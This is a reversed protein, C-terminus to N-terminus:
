GRWCVARIELLAKVPMLDTVGIATSAPYPEKIYVDKVKNFTEYHERLGVHYTTIEVINEFGLGAEELYAGLKTFVDHFQEEPDEPMEKDPLSATCGALFVLPGADVAASFHHDDYYHRYKEPVHVTKM